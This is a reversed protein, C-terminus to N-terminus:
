KEKLKMRLIEKASGLAVKELVAREGRALNMQAELLRDRLERGEAVSVDQKGLAMVYAANAVEECIKEAARLLKTLKEM